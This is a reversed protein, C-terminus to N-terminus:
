KFFKYIMSNLLSFRHKNKGVIMYLISILVCVIPDIIEKDLIHTVPKKIWWNLYISEKKM